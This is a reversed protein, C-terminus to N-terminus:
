HEPDRFLAEVQKRSLGRKAPNRTQLHDGVKRLAPMQFRIIFIMRSNESDATKGPGSGLHWEAERSSSVLRLPKIAPNLFGPRAPGVLVM